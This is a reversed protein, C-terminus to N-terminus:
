RHGKIPVIEAEPKGTVINAMGALATAAAREALAAHADEAFRIYRTVTSLQRHGLVTMIEPASAGAMALHSATSHRLGHLGITPPLKAEKRVTRWIKSLTLAADHAASEFVFDDPGGKPQRAIIAQAMTPLSITRPKGTSRATKHEKLVIRGRDLEVHKWRLGTIEGRRAGTLAILRISDAAAPRIRHEREMIDLTSFLRGYDDASDLIMERTGAPAIKYDRAPHHKTLKKRIAWSFIARLLKIAENATGAGGRVVAVGRPKTKEILATKGDRIDAAAKEIDSLELADIRRKGLTPRLHREIRGRDVGKTTAAKAAFEDSALYADLMENVIPLERQAKLEGTPDAGRNIDQLLRKTETRAAKLTWSACAGIHFYRERQEHKTRYRLAFTKSGGATVTVCLGPLKPDPFRWRDQAPLPLRKIWADTFRKPDSPIAPRASKGTTM